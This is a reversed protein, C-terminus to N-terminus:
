KPTLGAGIKSTKSQDGELLAADKTAVDKPVAAKLPGPEKSPIELESKKLKQAAAFIQAM